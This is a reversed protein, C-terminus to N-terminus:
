AAASSANTMLSASPERGTGPVGDPFRDAPVRRATRTSQMGESPFARAACSAGEATVSHLRVIQWWFHPQGPRESSSRSTSSCARDRPTSSLIIADNVSVQETPQTEEHHSRRWTASECLVTQAPKNTLHETNCEREPRSLLNRCQLRFIIRYCCGVVSKVYRETLKRFGGGLDSSLLGCSGM